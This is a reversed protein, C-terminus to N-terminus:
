NAGLRVLTALSLLVAVSVMLIRVTQNFQLVRQLIVQLLMKKFDTRVWAAPLAACRRSRLLAPLLRINRLLTSTSAM